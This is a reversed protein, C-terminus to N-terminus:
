PQFAARCGRNEKSTNGDRRWLSARHGVLFPPPCNVPLWHVDKDDAIYSQMAFAKSTQELACRGYGHDASNVHVASRAMRRPCYRVCNQEVQKRRFTVLYHMRQPTRATPDPNDCDTDAFDFALHKGARCCTDVPINRDIRCGVVEDVHQM